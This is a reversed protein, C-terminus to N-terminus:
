RSTRKKKPQSPPQTPPQKDKSGPTSASGDDPVPSELVGLTGRPNSVDIQIQGGDIRRNHVPDRRLQALRGLKTEPAPEGAAFEGPAEGWVIRSGTDTVIVLRKHKVYQSADVSAVQQWIDKNTQLYGLLALAAQVDGGTWPAGPTSPPEAYAGTIARQSRNSGAPYTVPLLDGHTSVLYDTGGFTVVAAPIRWRAKIRVLGDPERRIADIAEIWGTACLADAASQLSQVDLPNDSIRAAATQELERQLLAPLWTNPQGPSTTRLPPWEIAMKVPMRRVEGARSALARESVILGFLIGVGLVASLVVLVRNFQSQINKEKAM